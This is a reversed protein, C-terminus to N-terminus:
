KSLLSDPLREPATHVACCLEACRLRLMEAIAKQVETEATAFAPLLFSMCLIMAVILAAKKM